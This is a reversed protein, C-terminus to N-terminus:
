MVFVVGGTYHVSSINGCLHFVEPITLHISIIRQNKNTLFLSKVVSVGPLQMIGGEWGGGGLSLSAKRQDEKTIAFSHRLAKLSLDFALYTM